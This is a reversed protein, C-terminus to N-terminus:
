TKKDQALAKIEKLCAALDTARDTTRLARRRLLATATLWCWKLQLFEGLM